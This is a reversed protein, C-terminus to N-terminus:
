VIGHQQLERKLNYIMGIDEVRSDVYLPVTIENHKVYGFSMGVYALQKKARIVTNAFWEGPEAEIINLAM